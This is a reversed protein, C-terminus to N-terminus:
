DEKQDFKKLANVAIEKVEQNKDMPCIMLVDETDVIIYDELGSIVVKKHPHTKILNRASDDAYLDANVVANKLTDKPQRDYISKWSGLDDWDFRAQILFIHDSKEMLAYDVSINEALPYNQAIFAEESATNLHDFGKYFLDYLVPAHTKFGELVANASWAFIGSNWFYNKADIFTQATAKDPKETFATVKKLSLEEQDKEVAVYGFGTAPFDPRIGFTILNKEDAHDLALKMDEVFLKEDVIIHDSPCTVIKADSNIKKIKLSAMLICPATNRRGPECIVQDSSLRDGLQDLIIKQYRCQTVIFINSSPIFKELRACTSQLLSVGAETMDHFQKPFDPTSSPWFRSGIGGAMIIAFHNKAM